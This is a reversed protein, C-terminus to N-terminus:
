IEEWQTGSYEFEVPLGPIAYAQTAAGEINHGNGDVTLVSTHSDLKFSQRQGTVPSAPMKLTWPNTMDCATHECDGQTWASSKATRTKSGYVGTEKNRQSRIDFLLYWSAVDSIAIAEAGFGDDTVIVMMGARAPPTPLAAINAVAFAPCTCIGRGYGATLAEANLDATAAAKQPATLASFAGAVVTYYEMPDGEPIAEGENLDVLTETGSVSFTQYGYRRVYLLTTHIVAKRAM